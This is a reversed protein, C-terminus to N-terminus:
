DDHLSWGYLFCGVLTTFVGTGALWANTVVIGSVVVVLGTTLILFVTFAFPFNVLHSGHADEALWHPLHLSRGTAGTDNCRVKAQTDGFSQVGLNLRRLRLRTDSTSSDVPHELIEM